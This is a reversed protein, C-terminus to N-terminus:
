FKLDLGHEKTLKESADEFIIQAIVVHAVGGTQSPVIGVGECKRTDLARM